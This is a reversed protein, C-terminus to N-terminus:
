QRLRSADRGPPSGFMRAYERNFQSPSEYGVRYAASAADLQSSIMLNRAELLRISKQFQLPSMNTVSKFHAHFTSTSMSVLQALEEVTVPHRFDDRLKKIATAIRQVPSGKLSIQAIEEGYECRLIRYHIERLIPEALIPIDEPTELLKILRLVSEGMQPDVKGIFLGCGAKSNAAPFGEMLILLESLLKRDIDIQIVLYPKDKSAKVVTGIIPLDVSAILFELAGYRFLDKGLLVHKEGQVIICLSPEYVSPMQVKTHTIKYFSVKPLPSVNLGEANTFRDILSVLCKQLTSNM